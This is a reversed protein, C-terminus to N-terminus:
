FTSKKGHYHTIYVTSRQVPIEVCTVTTCVPSPFCLTNPLFSEPGEIKGRKRRRGKGEKRFWQQFEIGRKVKGIRGLPM